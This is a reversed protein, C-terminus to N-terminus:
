TSLVLRQKGSDNHNSTSLWYEQYKNRFAELELNHSYFQLVNAAPKPKYGYEDQLEPIIPEGSLKLREFIDLGGDANVIKGQTTLVRSARLLVCTRSDRFRIYSITPEM